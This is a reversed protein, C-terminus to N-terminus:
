RTPEITAAKEITHVRRGLKLQADGFAHFVQVRRSRALPRADAARLTFLPASEYRLGGWSLAHFAVFQSSEVLFGFPPLVVEGGLKSQVRFEDAGTNVIVETAGAGDGFVSRQVKRDPTLFEHRTMRERATLENLPSLVEHTNKVFRDVVHRGAAWGNDARTFLAPDGAPPAAPASVPEFEIREGTVKLRGVLYSREGEDRGRLKARGGDPWQFLGMRVNFTGGPGEPVTVAFPGESVEGAPWQSVPSKPEHDNQFKINGGADTFHVFVRWDSRPTKEVAWRYAIRFERPGTQKVKAV